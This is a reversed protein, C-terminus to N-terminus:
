FSSLLKVLADNIMQPNQADFAKGASAQAIAEMTQLDSDEDFAICFVKVPKDADIAVDKLLKALDNDSYENKGDSLVVVANIRDPDYNDVMYRHGARITTYLATNRAKELAEVQATFTKVSLPGLPLLPTYPTATSGAPESSFSWLAVRDEANLLGISSTAAKKALELRTGTGTSVTNQMSGSVDLAILINAKKRLTKWSDKMLNVVEPAPEAFYTGVPGRAAIAKVLAASAVRDHDRFGISAFSEQQEDDQLFALFDAAAQQQAGTASRLTVYPHDLNFTGEVPNLSVLRDRPPTTPGGPIKGENYLYVLEEQMVIASLDTKDGSITAADAAALTRLLDVVDDSYHSVNAEIRRVFQTVAPERLRDATLDSSSDTAAYYTAITAALGSTSLTPNDKGFTFKGLDPRQYTDWDSVSLLKWSLDREPVVSAKSAPMAIVLPSNAISPFDRVAPDLWRGDKDLLRLQDTWLSSTPLWVQPAQQGASAPWGAALTEMAKGSTLGTVTVATCQDDGYRRTSANYREGLEKVLDVKETSSLVSLPVCTSRDVTQQRVVVFAAAIVVLGAAAAIGVPLLRRASTQGSAM